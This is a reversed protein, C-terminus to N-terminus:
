TLSVCIYNFLSNIVPELSTVKNNLATVLMLSENLLQAIRKENARIGVVCNEACCTHILRPNPDTVPPRLLHYM